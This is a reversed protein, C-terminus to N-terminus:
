VYLERSLCWSNSFLVLWFSTHTVNSPDTRVINLHRPLLFTCSPSDVLPLLRFVVPATWLFEAAPSSRSYNRAPLTIQARFTGLHLATQGSMLSYLWCLTSPSLWLPQPSRPSRCPPSSTNQAPLLPPRAHLMSLRSM